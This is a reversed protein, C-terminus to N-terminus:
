MRPSSSLAPAEPKGTSLGIGHKALFAEAEVFSGVRTAEEEGSRAAIGSAVRVRAWMGAEAAAVDHTEFGIVAIPMGTMPLSLVIGKGTFGVGLELEQGTDDRISARLSTRGAVSQAVAAHVAAMHAPSSRTTEIRRLIERTGDLDERHVVAVVGGRLDWPSFSVETTMTGLAVPRRFVIAGFTFGVEEVGTAQM